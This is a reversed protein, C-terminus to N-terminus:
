AGKKPSKVLKRQLRQSRVARAPEEEGTGMTVWYLAREFDHTRHEYLKALTLRVTPDDLDKALAEFDLLARAIDGRAKNIRARLMLGEHHAGEDMARNAWVAAREFDKARLLTESTSCLDEAHPTSLPQGYLGVLAVMSVVDWENHDVVAMLVEEDGTRLFHGYRPAIEAGPIDDEGRRFGLVANELDILRCRGLRRKHIRRAVHLLDLHPPALCPELQNMIRRAELLPWDFSRGNFSVLMSAGAVLEAVRALLAMEESPHRLLLQETVWHGDTDFYAVGVLFALSGAGGLGTTETDLYLARAPDCKALAPDLALLSLLEPDALQACHVDRRGVEQSLGVRRRRQYLLGHGTEVRLFPLESLEERLARNPHNPQSAREPRPQGMLQALKHRVEALPDLASRGQEESGSREELGSRLQSPSSQPQDLPLQALRDKFKM